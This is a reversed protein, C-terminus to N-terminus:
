LFHEISVGLGHALKRAVTKSIERNGNLIESTLGKSGIIASIDKHKLGRDDMAARVAEAPTLKGTPFHINEYHEVMVTISEVLAEEEPSLSDKGEFALLLKTLRENESDDAPVRPAHKALLNAYLKEDFAITSLASM